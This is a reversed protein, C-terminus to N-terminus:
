YSIYNNRRWYRLLLWGFLMGGLHAFHAINASGTIGAFLEIVGYIIVFWKAKLVVPPFMLMIRNDPHLMGFALLLGYVAGSAGITSAHALRALAIPSVVPKSAAIAFEIWNVGLQILGAGVGCVFYYILFKRSGLDYELGRGFMWLAFMNFFIHTFDAHLFMYTFLQWFYFDGGKWFSLAGYRIITDGINAPLLTEAMFALINIILLNTVVSSRNNLQITQMIRQAFNKKVPTRFPESNM